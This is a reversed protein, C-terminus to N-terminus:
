TVELLDLRSFGRGVLENMQYVRVYLQTPPPSGFDAAIMASTYTTTATSLGTITRLLNEGTDDYIEVEYAESGEVNPVTGTGDKLEGNMRTRRIWTLVIDAGSAEATVQVPAYPMHDRPQVEHPASLAAMPIQGSSVARTYITSGAMALPLMTPLVADTRLFVILEGPQHDNAMTDTGRRGRLLRSLTYRDGEVQTVEFYQIVEIEGNAKFVAAANWGNYVQLDTVTELTSGGYVMRVTATQHVQTSFTDNGDPLADELYGFAPSRVTVDVESWAAGDNSVQYQAGHWGTTDRYPGAAWYARLATDGVSDIDRLLPINLFFLQSPELRPITPVAVGDSVVGTAESTWQGTAELIAAADTAYNAGLTLGGLRVRVSRGDNFNLTIPDGSDLYAFEPPLVFQYAVRSIWRDYLVIEARQKATDANMTLGIQIDEQQASRMTPNPERVRTAAQTNPQYQHDPDNYTLTVRFPLDKEPARTERWPLGDDQGDGTGEGRILDDEEITAVSTAGRQKFVIVGDTEVVNLHFIDILPRIANAASTRQSMIYGTIDMADIDTTDYDADDIPAATLVRSVLEGVTSTSGSTRNVLIKWLRASSDAYVISNSGQDYAQPYQQARASGMASTWDQIEIISGDSASVTVTKQGFAISIDTGSVKSMQLRGSFGAVGAEDALDTSWLVGVSKDVKFIWARLTTSSTVLNAICIVTDDTEDYVLGASAVYSSHWGDIGVADFDSYAIQAVNQVGVATKISYGLLGVELGESITILDIYLTPGYITTDDIVSLAWGEGFGVGVQGTSLAFCGGGFLSGSGSTADITELEEAGDGDIVHIQRTIRDQVLMFGRLSSTGILGVTAMAGAHATYIGVDEMTVSDVLTWATPNIRYVTDAYGVWLANDWGMALYVQSLSVSALAPIGLDSFLHESYVSLTELDFEILGNYPNGGLTYGISRLPNVALTYAYEQSFIDLYVGDSLRYIPLSPADGFAVEAQINPMRNGFKALPLHDIVIYCLGRYAPVNGDGLHSEMLSNPMQTESGPYFTFSLGEMRMVNESSADYILESNAWIRVIHNVEGASFAIAFTAAYTYTTQTVSGGGKRGGKGRGGGQSEVHKTEEIDLSWIVNGSVRVTGVGIPIIGGYTSSDVSLDALRAGEQNVNPQKQPFLLNGAMGGISMGISAATLLSAATTLGAAAGIGVGAAAGIGALALVAM